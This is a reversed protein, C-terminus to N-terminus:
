IEELIEDHFPVSDSRTDLCSKRAKGGRLKKEPRLAVPISLSKLTCLHGKSPHAQLSSARNKNAYSSYSFSPTLVKHPAPPAM